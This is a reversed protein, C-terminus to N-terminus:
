LGHILQCSFPPIMLQYELSSKFLYYFFLSVSSDYSGSRQEIENKAMAINNPDRKEEGKLLVVKKYTLTSDPRTRPATAAGMNVAISRTSELAM